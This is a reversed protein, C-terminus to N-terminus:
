RSRGGDGAPPDDRVVDAPAKDVRLGRWSPHRLRGAPTWESFVAEGVLVPRVWVADAADVAPVDEFPNEPSTLEDLRGRLRALERDSFGSGIRGAYRLRPPEGPPSPVPLGVLLSGLTSGRHGAGPRWGGIVVEQARVHKIKM